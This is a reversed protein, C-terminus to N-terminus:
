GAVRTALLRDVKENLLGLQGAVLELRSGNTEELQALVAALLTNTTTLADQLGATGTLDRLVM